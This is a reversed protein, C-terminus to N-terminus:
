SASLWGSASLGASNNWLIVSLIYDLLHEPICWNDVLVFSFYSRLNTGSMRTDRLQWNSHQSSVQWFGISHSSNVDQGSKAGELIDAHIWSPRPVISIIKGCSM